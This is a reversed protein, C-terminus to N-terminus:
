HVFQLCRSWRVRFWFDIPHKILDLIFWSEDSDISYLRLLIKGHIFKSKLPGWARSDSSGQRNDGMAWYEDPGLNIDFEDFVKGLRLGFIGKDPNPTGPYRLDPEGVWAVKRKGRMVEERTM